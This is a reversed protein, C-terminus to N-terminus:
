VVIFSLLRRIFSLSTEVRNREAQTLNSPSGSRSSSHGPRLRVAPHQKTASWATQFSFLPQLPPPNPRGGSSVENGVGCRGSM